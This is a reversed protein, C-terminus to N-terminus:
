AMNYTHVPCNLNAILKLWLEVRQV